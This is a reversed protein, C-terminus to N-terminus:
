TGLSINFEDQIKDRLGEATFKSLESTNIEHRVQRPSYSENELSRALVTELPGQLSVEPFSNNDDSRNVAATQPHLRLQWDLGDTLIVATNLNPDEDLYEEVDQEAYNFKKPTKIEGFVRLDQEMAASVPISTVCFDPIGSKPWRPAYQKPQPRIAHGLAQQLIPFVWHEEVFREPHQLLYKGKLRRDEKLVKRFHGTAGRRRIKDVLSELVRLVKDALSHRHDYATVEVM